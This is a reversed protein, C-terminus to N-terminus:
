GNPNFSVTGASLLVFSRLLLAVANILAFLGFGIALVTLLNRDLAPLSSDVAIQMYYPSALVFAQMVLTLAVAQLIARKLGALYPSGSARDAAPTEFYEAFGEDLWLPVFPLAAFRAGSM